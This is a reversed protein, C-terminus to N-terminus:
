DSVYVTKFCIRLVKLNKGDREWKRNGKVIDVTEEQEKIRRRNKLEEEAMEQSYRLDTFKSSVMALFSFFTIIHNLNGRKKEKM